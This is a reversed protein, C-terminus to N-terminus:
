GSPRGTREHRAAPRAHTPLSGQALRDYQRDLAQLFAQRSVPKRVFDGAGLSMALEQQALVTCVIVPCNGGMPHQRLRQLLQWGDLRSMMVDLVILVPQEKEVLSLALEPDSCALLRYRTGVAYRELLQLADHNDDIALVPVANQLPLYATMELTDVEGITELTGGCRSLLTRADRLSGREDSGRVVRGGDLRRGRLRLVLQWGQERTRLSLTGPSSRQIAATLLSLLAQRVIAAPGALTVSAGTHELELRVGYRKCLPKVVAQMALLEDPLRAADGSTDAQLWALERSLAGAQESPGVEEGGEAAFGELAAVEVGFRRRLHEALIALAQSQERRLQRVSIALQRALDAQTACQVYRYFLLEYTRWAPAGLPTGADPKLAEIAATLVRSLALPTSAEEPTLLVRALSNTRLVDPEYLHNLAHRLHRLFDEEGPM